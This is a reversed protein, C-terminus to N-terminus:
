KSEVKKNLLALRVENSWPIEKEIELEKLVVNFLYYTGERTTELPLLYKDNILRELSRVLTKLPLGTLDRLLAYGLPDATFNRHHGITHFYIEELVCYDVPKLKQKLKRFSSVALDTRRYFVLPPIAATALGKRPLTKKVITPNVITKKVM